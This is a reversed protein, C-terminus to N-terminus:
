AAHRQRPACALRRCRVLTAESLAGSHACFRARLSAGAEQYLGARDVAIDLEQPAAAAPPTPPADKGSAGSSSSARFGAASWSRAAAAPCALQEVQTLHTRQARAALLQVAACACRRM